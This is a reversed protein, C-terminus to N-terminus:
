VLGQGGGGEQSHSVGDHGLELMSCVHGEVRAICLILATFCLPLDGVYESCVFVLDAGGLAEPLAGDPAGLFVVLLPPFPLAFTCAMTLLARTGGVSQLLCVSYCGRHSSEDTHWDHSARCYTSWRMGRYSDWCGDHRKLGRTNCVGFCLHRLIHLRERAEHTLFARM